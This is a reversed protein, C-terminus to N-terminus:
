WNIVGVSWASILAINLFSYGLPLLLPLFSYVSTLIFVAAPIRWWACASENMPAHRLPSGLSRPLRVYVLLMSCKRAKYWTEMPKKMLVSFGLIIDTPSKWQVCWWRTKLCDHMSWPSLFFVTAFSLKLSYSVIPMVFPILGRVFFLSLIWFESSLVLKISSPYPNFLLTTTLLQLFMFEELTKKFRLDTDWFPHPAEYAGVKWLEKSLETNWGLSWKFNIKQVLIIASADLSCWTDTM